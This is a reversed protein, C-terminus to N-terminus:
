LSIWSYPQAANRQPEWPSSGTLWGPIYSDTRHGPPPRMWRWLLCATLSVRWSDATSGRRWQLLGEILEGLEQSIKMLAVAAAESKASCFPCLICLPQTLGVARCPAWQSFCSSVKGPSPFTTWPPSRPSLSNLCSGLRHFESGCLMVGPVWFQIPNRPHTQFHNLFALEENDKRNM